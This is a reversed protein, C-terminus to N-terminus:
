RVELIKVGATPTGAAVYGVAGPNNKVFAIVDRNSAVEVPPVGRGSFIANQWYSNIAPVSRKHVKKSFAKRATSARLQDVPTVASGDSWRKLKKLFMRSLTERTVSDAPNSTNTIVIYGTESGAVASGSALIGLVAALVVVAVKMKQIM